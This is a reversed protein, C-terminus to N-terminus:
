DAQGLALAGAVAGRTHARHQMQRRNENQILEADRIRQFLGRMDRLLTATSRRRRHEVARRREQAGVGRRQRTEHGIALQLRQHHGRVLRHRAKVRRRRTRKAFGIESLQNAPGANGPRIIQGIVHSGFPALPNGLSSAVLFENLLHRCAARDDLHHARFLCVVEDLGLVLGEARQDVLQAHPDFASARNVFRGPAATRRGPSDDGYDSRPPDPTLWRAICTCSPMPAMMAARKRIRYAMGFQTEDGLLTRLITSDGSNQGYMRPPSVPSIPSASTSVPRCRNPPPSGTFSGISSGRWPMIRRAAIATSIIAVKQTMGQSPMTQVEISAKTASAKRTLVRWGAVAKM